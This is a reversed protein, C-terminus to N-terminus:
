SLYPTVPMHGIDLGCLARQSPPLQGNTERLQEVARALDADLVRLQRVSQAGARWQLLRPPPEARSEADLEFAAFLLKLSDRWEAALSTPAGQAALLAAPDVSGSGDSGAESETAPLAGQIVACYVSLLQLVLVTRGRGAREGAGAARQPLGAARPEEAGASVLEFHGAGEEEALTLLAAGLAGVADGAGLPGFSYQLSQPRGRERLSKGVGGSALALGPALEPALGPTSGLGSALGPGACVRWDLLQVQREAQAHATMELEFWAFPPHAAPPPPQQLPASAGLAPAFLAPSVLMHMEGLGFASGSVEPLSPQERPASQQSGVVTGCKACRALTWEQMGPTSDAAVRRARKPKIQARPALLGTSWGLVHAQGRFVLESKESAASTPHRAYAAPADGEVGDDRAYTSSGPLPPTPGAGLVPVRETRLAGPALRSRALMLWQEGHLTQMARRRRRAGEDGGAAVGADAANVVDAADAAPAGPAPPPLFAGWACGDNECACTVDALEHAAARPLQVLQSEFRPVLVARCGVCELQAAGAAQERMRRRLAAARLDFGTRERIAERGQLEALQLEHGARAAAAAMPLRLSICGRGQEVQARGLDVASSADVPLRVVAVVREEGTRADRLRLEIVITTGELGLSLGLRAGGADPWLHVLLVGAHELREALYRVRMPAADAM